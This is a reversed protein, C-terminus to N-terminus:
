DETLRDKRVPYDAPTWRAVLPGRLRDCARREINGVTTITTGLAKATPGRPVLKNGPGNFREDLVYRQREDLLEEKLRALLAATEARVYEQEPDTPVGHHDVAVALRGLESLGGVFVLTLPEGRDQDPVLMNSVLSRTGPNVMRNAKLGPFLEELWEMYPDKQCQIGCFRLLDRGTGQFNPAQIIFRRFDWMTPVSTDFGCHETLLRRIEEPDDPDLLDAANIQMVVHVTAKETSKPTKSRTRRARPKKPKAAWEREEDFVRYKISNGFLSSPMVIGDRLGAPLILVIRPVTDGFLTMPRFYKQKGLVESMTPALDILLKCHPSNWGETLVRVTILTDIEGAEYAEHLRDRERSSTEGLILGPATAGDPRHERLYASLLKAQTTSACTILAPIGANDEHYWRFYLTAALVPDGSLVEGLQETNFDKGVIQVGSADANVSAVLIDPEPALIGLKMAEPVRIEHILHPFYRQLARIEDYNETATLAIRIADPDFAENLIRQRDPSMSRHGEDAFIFTANRIAAPLTGASFQSQVVQYTAVIVGFTALNKKEGTYSVTRVSPIQKRLSKVHQKVLDLSPALVVATAGSAAIIEGIIVTKGTRPPQIIRGWPFPLEARNRKRVRARALVAVVYDTADAFVSQQVTWLDITTPITTDGQVAAQMRAAVAELADIMTGGSRVADLRHEQTHSGDENFTMRVTVAAPGEGKRRRRRIVVRGKRGGPPQKTSLTCRLYTCTHSHSHNQFVM